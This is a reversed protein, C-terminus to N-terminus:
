PLRNRVGVTTTFVQFMRRDTAAATVTAGNFTYTQPVPLVNPEQSALLLNIRASVVQRWGLPPPGLLGVQTATLYRDATSDGNTDVGYVIQM